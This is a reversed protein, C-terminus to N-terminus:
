INFLTFYIHSFLIVNYVIKSVEFVDSGTDFSLTVLRVEGSWVGDRLM